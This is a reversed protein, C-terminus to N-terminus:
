QGLIKVNMRATPKDEAHFAPDPHHLTCYEAPVGDVMTVAGMHESDVCGTVQKCVPCHLTYGM